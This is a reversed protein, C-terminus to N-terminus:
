RPRRRSVASMALAVAGATAADAGFAALRLEPPYPVFTELRARIAELVADSSRTYGGGVVLREPDVAVALNAAHLAIEAYLDDLFARAAPDDLQALAV